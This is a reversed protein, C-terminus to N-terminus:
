PPWGVVDPVGVTPLLSKRPAPREPDPGFGVWPDSSGTSCGALGPGIVAPAALGLFTLRAYTVTAGKREHAVTRPMAM